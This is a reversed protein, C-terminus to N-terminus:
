QKEEWADCCDDKETCETCNKSKYNCCYIGGLEDIHSYHCRECKDCTNHEEVYGGILKARKEAASKNMYVRDIFSGDSVVYIKM